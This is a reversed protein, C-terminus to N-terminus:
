YKFLMYIASAGKFNRINISTAEIFNDVRYNLTNRHMYLKKASQSSNLNNEIFEYVTHVVDKNTKNVLFEIIKQRLDKQKNIVVYPIIDEFYYVKHPIVKLLEKLDRGILFDEELYPEVFMSVSGGFDELILQSIAELDIPEENFYDIDLLTIMSEEKSEITINSNINSFLLEIDESLPEQYIYIKRKM